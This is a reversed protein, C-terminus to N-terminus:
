DVGVHINTGMGLGGGLFTVWIFLYRSLEEAWVISDNLVYRAFVAATVVAVLVAFQAIVVLEVLRNVRRVFARYLTM